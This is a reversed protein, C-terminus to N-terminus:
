VEGEELSIKLKRLLNGWRMNLNDTCRRCFAFKGQTHSIAYWPINKRGCDDCTYRRHKVPYIPRIAKKRQM